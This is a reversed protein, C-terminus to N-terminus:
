HVFDIEAKGESHWYLIPIEKGALVQAIYNETMAGLFANDGDLPSLITQLPLTSCLCSSGLLLLAYVPLPM